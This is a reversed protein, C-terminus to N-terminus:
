KSVQQGEVFHVVSKCEDGIDDKDLDEEDVCSVADLGNVVGCGDGGGM